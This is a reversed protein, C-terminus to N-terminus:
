YVHESFGNKRFSNLEQFEFRSRKVQQRLVHSGRARQVVESVCCRPGIAHRWGRGACHTPGREPGWISELRVPPCGDVPVVPQAPLTTTPLKDVCPPRPSTFTACHSGRYGTPCICSYTSSVLHPTSKPYPTTTHGPTMEGAVRSSPATRSSSSNAAAPPHGSSLHRSSAAATAASERALARALACPTFALPMAASITCSPRGAAAMAGAVLRRCVGASAAFDNASASHTKLALEPALATFM